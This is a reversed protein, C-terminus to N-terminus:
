DADLHRHGDSALALRGTNLRAGETTRLTRGAVITSTSKSIWNGVSDYELSTTRTEGEARFEIENGRADRITTSCDRRPNVASVWCQVQQNGDYTFETTQEVRSTSEDLLVEKVVRGLDDLSQTTVRWKGLIRARRRVLGPRYEFTQDANREWNDSDTKSEIVRGQSDYSCTTTTSVHEGDRRHLQKVLRGNEYYSTTTPAQSTGNPEYFVTEVIGGEPSLDIRMTQQPQGITKGTTPDTREQVVTVSKVRGLLDLRECASADRHAAVVCLLIGVGVM